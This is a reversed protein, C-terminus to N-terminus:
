LRVKNTLGLLVGCSSGARVFFSFFAGFTGLVRFGRSADHAACGFRIFVGLSGACSAFAGSGPGSVPRDLLGAVSLSPRGM